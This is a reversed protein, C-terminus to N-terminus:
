EEWEDFTMGCMLWGAGTKKFQYEPSMTREGFDVSVGTVNAEGGNVTVVAEDLDTEITMDFEEMRGIFEGVSAKDSDGPGLYDDALTAMVGEGDSAELAALHQAMVDMIQEEASPGFCPCWACGSSLALAGALGIVAVWRVKRMTSRRM